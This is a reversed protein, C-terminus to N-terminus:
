RAAQGAVAAEAQVLGYGFQDDKGAQGLDMATKEVQERVQKWTWDPHTAWTLACVGAVVPAAMSTGKLAAYNQAYGHDNLPVRYTPTTNFIDVGPAGVSVEPGFNSFSAKRDNADIASVAMYYQSIRAPTGVAGNSNGAAAVLLAGKGTAYAGAALSIPDLAAPGGLSLNIVVHSKHDTGYDAAYKIGAAIAFLNGGGNAGLVGIPLIKAEPAVGAVGEANNAAAAIIGAVHTGHGFVDIADPKQTVFSYGPGVVSSKLDPHNYDVGTDVVAAVVGAGRTRAWARDAAIRPLYWQKKYHPDESDPLAFGVTTPGKAAVSIKVFRNPSVGAVAPDAAIAGLTLKPSRVLLYRGERGLDLTGAVSVGALSPARGAKAAVIFEGPIAQGDVMGATTAATGALGPAGPAGCASLSLALLAGSTAIARM